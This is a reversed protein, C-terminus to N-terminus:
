NLKTKYGDHKLLLKDTSAITVNYEDVLYYENDEFQLEM